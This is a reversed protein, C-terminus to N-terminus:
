LAYASPEVALVPCPWAAHTSALQAAAARSAAEDAAKPLLLQVLPQQAPPLHQQFAAAATCSGASATLTYKSRDGVAAPFGSAV